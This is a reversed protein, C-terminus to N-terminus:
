KVPVQNVHSETFDQIPEWSNLVLRDGLLLFQFLDVARRQLNQESNSFIGFSRSQVQDKLYKGHIPPVPRFEIKQNEQWFSNVHNM